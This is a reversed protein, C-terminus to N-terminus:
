PKGWDPKTAPWNLAVFGSGKARADSSRNDFEYLHGYRTDEVLWWRVKDQPNPEAATLADVTPAEVTINSLHWRANKSARTWVRM